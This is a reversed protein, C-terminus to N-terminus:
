SVAAVVDELMQIVEDTTKVDAFARGLIKVEAEHLDRNVEAVADEVLIMRYNHEVGGRLTTSVCVGTTVGAMVCTTVGMNRLITDLPTNAFGGYGKKVVLHENEQPQLEDMIQAGWTGEVLFTRNGGSWGSRWHPWQADSYELKHTTAIYIVPRRANRFAEALRKVYPITGMLFPMDFGRQPNERARHAFGGDPHIFDNQMDVVILASRDIDQGTKQTEVHAERQGM